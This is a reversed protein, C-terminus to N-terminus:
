SEAVPARQERARDIIEFLDRSQKRQM